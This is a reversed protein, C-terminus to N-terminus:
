GCWTALRAAHRGHDRRPPAPRRATWTPWGRPSGAPPCRTRSSTARHRTACGCPQAPTWAELSEVSEAVVRLGLRRGLDVTTRMIAADQEDELGTAVNIVVAVLDDRDASQRTRARTTASMRLASGWSTQGSSARSNM